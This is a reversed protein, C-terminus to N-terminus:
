AEGRRFPFNFEYEKPHFSLCKCGNPLTKIKVYVDINEITIGFTWIEGDNKTVDNDAEPGKLYHHIELHHKLHDFLITHTWGLERLLNAAKQDRRRVLTFQETTLSHLYDLFIKIDLRTTLLNM